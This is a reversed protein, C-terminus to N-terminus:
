FGLLFRYINLNLNLIKDGRTLIIVHGCPHLYLRFIFLRFIFLLRHHRQSCSDNLHFHIYHRFVFLDRKAHHVCQDLQSYIQTMQCLPIVGILHPTAPEPSYSAHYLNYLSLRPLYTKSFMCHEHPIRDVAIVRM